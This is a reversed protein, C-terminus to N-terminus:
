ILRQMRSSYSFSHHQFILAFASFIYKQNSMNKITEIRMEVNLIVLICVTTRFSTNMPNINYDNHAQATLVHIIYFYWSLHM